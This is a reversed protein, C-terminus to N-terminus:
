QQSAKTKLVRLTELMLNNIDLEYLHNPSILFSGQFLPKKIFLYYHQRRIEM